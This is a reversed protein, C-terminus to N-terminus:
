CLEEHWSSTAVVLPSLLQELVYGNAKLVLRLFKGIDHEPAPTLQVKEVTLDRTKDSGGEGLMAAMLADVPLVHAARLDYDGDDSPFGYLDAGSLTGFVSPYALNGALFEALRERDVQWDRPTRELTSM